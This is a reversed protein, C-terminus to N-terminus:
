FSEEKMKAELEDCRGRTATREGLDDSEGGGGAYKEEPAARGPRPGDPDKGESAAERGAAGEANEEAVGRGGKCLHSPSAKAASGCCEVKHVKWHSRQHERSCYWAMGCATCKKTVSEASFSPLRLAALYFLRSGM